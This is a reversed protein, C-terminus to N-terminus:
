IKAYSNNLVNKSGIFVKKAFCQAMQRCTFGIFMLRHIIYNEGTKQVM